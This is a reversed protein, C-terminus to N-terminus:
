QESNITWLEPNKEYVRPLFLGITTVTRYADYITEFVSIAAFYALFAEADRLGFIWLIPAMAGVRAIYIPIRSGESIGELEVIDEAITNKETKQLEIGKSYLEDVGRVLRSNGFLKEILLYFIPMDHVGMAFSYKFKTWLSVESESKEEKVKRFHKRHTLYWTIGWTTYFSAIGTISPVFTALFYGNIPSESVVNFTIGWVYCTPIVGVLMNIAYKDKEIAKIQKIKEDENKPPNKKRNRRKWFIQALKLATVGGVLTAFVVFDDEKKLHVHELVEPRSIAYMGIQPAILYPAVRLGEFFREVRPHGDKFRTWREANRKKLERLRLKM